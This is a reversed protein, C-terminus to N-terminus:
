KSEGREEETYGDAIASLLIETEAMHEGLRSAIEQVTTINRSIVERARRAIQDRRLESGTVDEVIAGVTKYEEISFIILDLLQDGVKLRDRRIDKGSRLAARLLNGCPFIDEVAVGSLNPRDKFRGLQDEGFIESFAQNSEIIKLDTGVIVVGAPMCRFLANAKRQAITRMHYVCMEEEADGALLAHAFNRCTDYGCGGCNLEDEPTTKGVRALAARIDQEPWIKEPLPQPQWDRAERLGPRPGAPGIRARSRVAMIGSFTPVEEASGPGNVCGGRCALGEFFFPVQFDNLSLRELAAKVRKLGSMAQAQVSGPCGYHRLTELMGGELPYLSGESADDPFMRDGEDPIIQAPNIARSELWEDLENFTLALDLLDPNEDAETKKASCPGFFVVRIDSGQRNKLFRCHTLLPSSAKTIASTLEPLHKRVLDVVAPCASSIRLGPGGGALDQALDASVEQAGIATESVERFGLRRLAAVLQGPSWKPYLAPWSPAVSAYVPQTELLLRRARALDNRVLKAGNPCIRVCRGCAVCRESAVYAHENEVRIAKVPCERVCKYCDHCEKEQTYVPFLHEM